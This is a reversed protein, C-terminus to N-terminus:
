KRSVSLSWQLSKFTNVYYFDASKQKQLKNEKFSFKSQFWSTAIFAPDFISAKIIFARHCDYNEPLIIVVKLQRM